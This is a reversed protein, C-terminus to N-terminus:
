EVVIKELIRDITNYWSNLLIDVPIEKYSEALEGSRAYGAAIIDVMYELLDIFDVDKRRNSLIHHREKTIHLKYWNSQIFEKHTPCRKCIDLFDDIETLKTYDHQSLRTKFQDILMNGIKDVDSMHEITIDVLTDKNSIGKDIELNRKIIIM